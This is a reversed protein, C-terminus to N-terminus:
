AAYEAERDRVLSETEADLEAIRADLRAADPGGDPAAARQAALTARESRRRELARDLEWAGEDGPSEPRSRGPETSFAGRLGAAVFAVAAVAALVAELLPDRWGAAFGGPALGLLASGVLVTLAVSLVFSLTATELSRRLGEPGRFRWEPFMARAVALGPVVFLLLGGGVAEFAELPGM